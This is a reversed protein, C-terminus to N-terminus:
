PSLSILMADGKKNVEVIGYKASHEVEIGTGEPVFYSEIGFHLQNQDGAPRGTIVVEDPALIKSKRYIEKFQFIGNEDPHLILQVRHSEGLDAGPPLQSIKYNLRVYDGQMLSRPDLPALELRVTQGTRLLAEKSVILVAIIVIQVVVVLLLWKQGNTTLISTKM